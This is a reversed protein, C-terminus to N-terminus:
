TYRWRNEDQFLERESDCGFANAKSIAMIALAKIESQSDTFAARISKAMLSKGFMDGTDSAYRKTIAGIIRKHLNRYISDMWENLKLGNLIVRKLRRIEEKTIQQAFSVGTPTNDNWIKTLAKLTEKYMRRQMTYIKNECRQVYRLILDKIDRRFVFDRRLAQAQITAQELSTIRKYKDYRKEMRNVILGMVLSIYDITIPEIENVLREGMGMLENQSEIVLKTILQQDIKNEAKM